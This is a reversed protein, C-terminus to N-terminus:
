LISLLRLLLYAGLITYIILRNKVFWKLFKDFDM